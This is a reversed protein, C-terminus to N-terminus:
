YSDEEELGHETSQREDELLVLVEEERAEVGSCLRM